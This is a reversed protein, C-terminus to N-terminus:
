CRAYAGGPAGSPQWDVPLYGQEALLQQLRLTSGAPVTWEIQSTTRLASGSGTTM